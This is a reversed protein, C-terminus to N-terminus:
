NRLMSDITAPGTDKSFGIMYNNNIITVPVANKPNSYGPLTNSLNLFRDRNDATDYRNIKLTDPMLEELFTLYVEEDRCYPCGQSYYFDIVKTKEPLAEPTLSKQASFSWV